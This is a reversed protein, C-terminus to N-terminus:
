RLGLVDQMDYIGNPKDVIWKAARVAGTAFNDRSGARHTLEVREGTGAFIVTHEGVVDGGRLTMVGIENKPRAGVQGHRGYSGVKGLNRGLEDAVIDALRAATGSPADVKQNHHMEVIEVDYDDSLISAAEKVLKFLANVGVSMNPAIVAKASNAMGDFTVWHEENFGTTGIVIAKGAETAMLFHELSATPVSFDIVVDGDSIIDQLQPSIPVGKSAIGAVQGADQGIFPGDPLDTAGTLEIGETAEIVNIIRRGMRGASGTVIAKIM